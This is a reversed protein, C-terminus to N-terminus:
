RARLLINRFMLGLVFLAIFFYGIGFGLCFYDHLLFDVCMELISIFFDFVQNIM